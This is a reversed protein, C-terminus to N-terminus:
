GTFAPSVPDDAPATTPTPITTTTPSANDVASWVPHSLEINQGVTAADLIKVPNTGDSNAVWLSNNGGQPAASFSMKTGDPSVMPWDIVILNLSAATLLVVSNTGDANMRAIENNSTRYLIKGDPTWSASRAGAGNTLQTPAGGAAPISQIQTPNTGSTFLITLGDASFQPGHVSPISGNTLNTLGTGDANIIMLDNSGAGGSPRDIFAVKTGDASMSTATFQRGSTSSAILTDGTGDSNAVRLENPTNAGAPTVYSIKAGTGCVSSYWGNAIVTEDGTGDPNVRHVSSSTNAGSILIQSYQIKGNAGPFQASGAPSTPLVVFGLALGTIAAISLLRRKAASTFTATSM